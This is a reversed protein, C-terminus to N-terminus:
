PRFYDRITRVKDVPDLSVFVARVQGRFWQGAAEGLRSKGPVDSV